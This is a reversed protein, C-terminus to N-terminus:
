LFRRLWSMKGKWWRRLTNVDVVADSPEDEGKKNKGKVEWGKKIRTGENCGERKEKWRERSGEIRRKDNM